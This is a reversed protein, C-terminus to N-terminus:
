KMGAHSLVTEVIKFIIAALASIGLVYGTTKSKWMQLDFIDKRIPALSAEFANSVKEFGNYLADRVAQQGNRIDHIDKRNQDHNVKQLTALSSVEKSLRTIQEQM